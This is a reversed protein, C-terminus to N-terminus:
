HGLAQTRWASTREDQRGITRAYARDSRWGSEQHDPLAARSSWDGRLGFSLDRFTTCNREYKVKVRVNSPAPSPPTHVMRRVKEADEALESPDGGQAEGNSVM